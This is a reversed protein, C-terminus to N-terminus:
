AFRLRMELAEIRLGDLVPASMSVLACKTRAKGYKRVSTQMYCTLKGSSLLDGEQEPGDDLGVGASSSRMKRLEERNVSVDFTKNM